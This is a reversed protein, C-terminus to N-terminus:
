RMLYTVLLNAVLVVLGVAIPRVWERLEKKREALVAEKAEMAIRKKEQESILMRLEKLEDLVRNHEDRTIYNM